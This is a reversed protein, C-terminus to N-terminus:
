KECYYEGRMVFTAEGQMIINGDEEQMILNGYKFVVTSPSHVFGLKLGAAFSGCAGSGCALTLGAGREWVSLYIKNDKVEAFNVNVGDVFLEKAQLKQGIIKQDQPELKSFIILHPNGIDVCMTEKLDLMYREAFAWIRDRSPMWTENFSVNGVNVSIKNAAEVNCLLKKKGVMITIDKKGTDLYILKALCRTANGCLKANSGDINYIIMTYVNNYEEYIICQDCGIGTHRDAMNKALQSLNCVTALDRKHVIVFDNGLGHMKVFNIKNIM